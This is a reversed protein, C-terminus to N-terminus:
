DTIQYGQHIYSAGAVALQQQISQSLIYYQGGWEYNQSDLLASELYAPLPSSSAVINMSDTGIPNELWTGEGYLNWSNASTFSAGPMRFVQRQPDVDIVYVYASSTTKVWLFPASGVRYRPPLLMEIGISVTNPVTPVTPSPPEPCPPGAPSVPRPPPPPPPPPPPQPAPPPCPPGAPPQPANPNPPIRPGHPVDISTDCNTPPGAPPLPQQSVSTLSIQALFCVVAVVFGTALVKKM